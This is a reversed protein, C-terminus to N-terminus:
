EESELANLSEVRQDLKNEYDDALAAPEASLSQQGFLTVQSRARRCAEEPSDADLRLVAMKEPMGNAQSQNADNWGHRYIVYHPM